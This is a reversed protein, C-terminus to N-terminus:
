VHADHACAARRPVIMWRAAVDFASHNKRHRFTSMSCPGLNRYPYQFEPFRENQHLVL